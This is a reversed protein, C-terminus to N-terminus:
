LGKIQITKVDNDGQETEDRMQIQVDLHMHETSIYKQIVARIERKMQATIEPSMQMKESLIMQELRNRAINGSPRYARM